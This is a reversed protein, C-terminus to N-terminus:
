RIHVVKGSGRITQTINAPGQLQVDGSGYITVESTDGSWTSVKGSGFVEIRSTASELRELAVDGSGFSSITQAVAQGSDIRADGSGYMEISITAVELNEINVNGSGYISVQLDSAKLEGVRIDGSGKVDLVRIPLRLAEAIISGSANLNIVELERYGVEGSVEILEPRAFFPFIGKKRSHIRLQSDEVEVKLNSPDGSEIKLSVFTSDGRVLNVSGAVNFQISRFDEVAQNFSEESSSVSNAMTFLALMCLKKFM